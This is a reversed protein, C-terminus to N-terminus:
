TKKNGGERDTVCIECLVNSCLWQRWDISLRSIKFLFLYLPDTWNLETWNLEFWFFHETVLNSILLIWLTVFFPCYKEGGHGWVGSGWKQELKFGDRIICYRACSGSWLSWHVLFHMLIINYIVYRYFSKRM